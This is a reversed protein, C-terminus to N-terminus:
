DQHEYVQVPPRDTQEVPGITDGEADASSPMVMEKKGDKAEVGAVGVDKTAGGAAEPAQIKSNKQGGKRADSAVTELYSGCRKEVNPLKLVTFHRFKADIIGEKVDHDKDAQERYVKWNLKRDRFDARMHDMVLSEYMGVNGSSDM